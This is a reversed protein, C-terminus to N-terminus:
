PANQRAQCYHPPLINKRNYTGFDTPIEQLFAALLTPIYMGREGLTLVVVKKGISYWIAYIFRDCLHSPEKVEEEQALMFSCACRVPHVPRYFFLTLIIYIIVPLSYLVGVIFLVGVCVCAAGLILFGVRMGTEKETKM